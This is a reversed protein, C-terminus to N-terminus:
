SLTEPVGPRLERVRDRMSAPLAERLQQPTGALPPFTGYHMGIIIRPDLLEAAKAGEVPGMTYLGGIPLIAVAPAYLERFLQMDLFVATDGAHYVATGDEFRIVFGAPDAGAMVEAETDIGSSHKADVMIVGIGHLSVTGCKNMGTVKAVGKKKLYLAVEHIAIVDAGTSKALAVTNGIHDSHGHTVLILQVNSQRLAGPPANPNELWPDILVGKGGPTDFRFASHGLWTITLPTPPSAPVHAM